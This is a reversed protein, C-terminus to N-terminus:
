SSNILSHGPKFKFIIPKISEDKSSIRDIEELAMNIISAKGSAREGFLGIVLSGKEQYKLIVSGPSQAFPDRGLLDAEHTKVPQDSNFM